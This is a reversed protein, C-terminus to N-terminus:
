PRDAKSLSYNLIHPSSHNLGPSFSHSSLHPRRWLLCGLRECKKTEGVCFHTLKWAARGPWSLMMESYSSFVILAFQNVIAVLSHPPEVELTRSMKACSPAVHVM